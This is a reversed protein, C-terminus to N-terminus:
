EEIHVQGQMTATPAWLAERLWTTKIGPIQLGATEMRTEAGDELETELFLPDDDGRQLLGACEEVAVWVRKM